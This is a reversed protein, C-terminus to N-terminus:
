NLFDVLERQEPALLRRIADNGQGRKLESWHLTQANTLNPYQDNLPVVDCKHAIGERYAGYFFLDRLMHRRLFPYKRLGYVYILNFERFANAKYELIMATDQKYVLYGVPQSMWPKKGQFAAMHIGFAVNGDVQWTAYGWDISHWTGSWRKTLYNQEPFCYSNWWEGRRVGQIIPNEVGEELEKLIKALENIDPKLVLLGANIDAGTEKDIDTYKKPIRSGLKIGEKCLKEHWEKMFINLELPSWRPMELIGAPTPLSFLTDYNFLPAIDLDVHVIKEYETLALMYLKTFVHCWGHSCDEHQRYWWCDKYLDTSPVVGVRARKMIGKSSTVYPVEIVRDYLTKLLTVDESKVDSTVLCVIDACTNQRKLGLAVSLAGDLYTTRNKEDPFLVMVYAFRRRGDEYEWQRHWSLKLRTGCWISVPRSLIMERSITDDSTKMPTFRVSVDPLEVIGKFKHLAQSCDGHDVFDEQYIFYPEYEDM